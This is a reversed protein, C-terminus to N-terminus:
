YEQLDHSFRRGEDLMALFNAVPIYHTISNGSGLCYGGGTHCTELIQRTYVRVENEGARSLFSVDAGGLVGVRGGYRRYFDAVPMIEDEFSHKSDIGVESIMADMLSDVQGCSHLFYLKGKEHAIAAAKKHLPIINEKLWEPSVLTQTKFGMDDAAWIAGICDFDCLLRTYALYADAVKDLVARLFEPDDYMMMFLGEYGLLWNLCEFFQGSLDFAKMGDPLNRGAWELPATNLTEIRPWPYSEFDKWNRIPGGHEHVIYGQRNADPIGGAEDASSRINMPFESDPLHIRVM